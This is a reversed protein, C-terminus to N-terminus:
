YINGEFVKEASGTMLTGEASIKINVRGGFSSVNVNKSTYGFYNAIIASATMGTGCGYTYGCGREWTQVFINNKDIVRVFNVNTRKPFTPHNEIEPGYKELKKIDIEEDVFVVTHPVGMLISSLKFEKNLVIITEDIFRKKDKYINHVPILEPEFSGQGMDVSISSVEGNEAIQLNIEKEGGLTEVSFVSKEIIKNEIIYKSFCRIGNGCMEGRSGDANYYVMKIDSSVSNKVVIFGDAGISFKRSCFRLADESYSDDNRGDLRGDIVIFDNGCGQMKWFKM